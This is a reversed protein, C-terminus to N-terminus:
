ILLYIFQHIVISAFHCLYEPSLPSSHFLNQCLREWPLSRKAILHTDKKKLRPVDGDDLKKKRIVVRTCVSSPSIVVEMM